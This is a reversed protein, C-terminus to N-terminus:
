SQTESMIVKAMLRIDLFNSITKFITDNIPVRVKFLGNM